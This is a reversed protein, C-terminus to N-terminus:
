RVTLDHADFLLEHQKEGEAEAYDGVKVSQCQARTGYLLRLQQNGDRTAIVLYPIHTPFAVEYQPPSADCRVELVNGETRYDDQGSANTHSRQHRQTETLRPKDDDNNPDNAAGGAAVAQGAQAGVTVTDTCANNTEMSEAVGGNPDVACTAGARPNAYTGAMTSTATLSVQFSGGSPLTVAGGTAFCALRVSFDVACAIPGSTGGSPTVTPAGYTVGTNPLNDILAIQGNAFTAALAGANALTITWTWPAGVNAAGGVNNAKTATLDAGQVIVSNSCTNNGEATGESVNNNPDVVCTGGTRPNAYTGLTTSVASFAVRFSGGAPLTVAGGNAVCTLRVTFDVECTLPGSAGGTPPSVV